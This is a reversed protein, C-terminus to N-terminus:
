SIEIKGLPGVGRIIIKRDRIEYQDKRLVTWLKWSKNKKKYGPPNVEKIFPPLSGKKKAKLLNFFSRWADNNKNLIQQTTASGILGKYKEYFEKYTGKIDVKGSEFFQRRRVYTIENWLKSSLSCLAKLKSEVEKDPELRVISTRIM